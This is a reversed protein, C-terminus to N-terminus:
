LLTSTELQVSVSSSCFVVSPNRRVKGDLELSLFLSGGFYGGCSQIFFQARHANDLM